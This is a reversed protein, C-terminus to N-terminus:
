EKLLALIREAAQRIQERILRDATDESGREILSIITEHQALVEKSRVVFTHGLQSVHFLNTLLSYKLLYLLRSNGSIRAIEEHFLIDTKVCSRADRNKMASALKKDIRRLAQIDRPQARRCALRVSLAEMFERIVYLEEVDARKFQRVFTGRRPTSVLLGQEELRPFAEKIPTLSVGLDKSVVDYGLRQGPRYKGSLINALLLEYTRQGLTYHTMAQEEHSGRFAPM